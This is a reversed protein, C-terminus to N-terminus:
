RRVATVIDQYYPGAGAQWRGPHVGAVSLGAAGLAELVWETELAVASEAVAADHVLGHDIPIPFSPDTVGERAPGRVRDDLLYFTAFLRGSSALTRGIERLYRAVASPLLHTFLSTAIALDFSADAWPFVFDEPLVAGEPNYFGTRVDAHRFRFRAADLGLSGACWDTYARVVDFGDYSGRPGLRRSLPWAVRGLGCGVDLVRDDPALGAKELLSVTLDGAEVYDGPGVGSLLVEPPIPRPSGPARVV